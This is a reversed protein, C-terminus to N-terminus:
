KSEMPRISGDLVEPRYYRQFSSWVRGSRVKEQLMEQIAQQDAASVAQRSIYVGSHGWPFEPLAVFRLKQQLGQCRGDAETAAVLISPAMVSVDALGANLARGVALADTELQLRGQRELEKLLSQYHQGYDFGRVLAVRVQPNNVIDQLHNIKGQFQNTAILMARSQVLPVFIGLEDRRPTKSAPILLDAKGAEFLAELRARPVVSFQFRCASDGSLIDPYVGRVGDTVIVSYGIGAVPVNMVRSCAAYASAAQLVVLGPLCVGAVVRGWWGSKRKM